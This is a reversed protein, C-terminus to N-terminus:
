NECGLQSRAAFFKLREDEDVHKCVEHYVDRGSDPRTAQKM